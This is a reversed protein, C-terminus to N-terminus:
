IIILLLLNNNVKKEIADINYKNIIEAHHEIM